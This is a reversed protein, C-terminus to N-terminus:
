DELRYINLLTNLSGSVVSTTTSKNELIYGTINNGITPNYTNRTYAELIPVLPYNLSASDFMMDAILNVGDVSATGFSRTKESVPVNEINTSYLRLRSGFDTVNEITFGTYWGYGPCGLPDQYYGTCEPTLSYGNPYPSDMFTGIVLSSTGSGITFEKSVYQWDEVAGSASAHLYPYIPSGGGDLPLAFYGCDTPNQTTDKCWFWGSMRYTKGNEVPVNYFGGNRRLAGTRTAIKAAYQTSGVPIEPFPKTVKTPDVTTHLEAVSATQYFFEWGNNDTPDGLTWQQDPNMNYTSKGQLILFSNPSTISGSIGYVGATVSSTPVMFGSFFSGTNGIVSDNNLKIPYSEVNVVTATTSGSLNYWLQGGTFTNGIVPPNFTLKNNDNLVIESILAVSASLNFAGPVRNADLIMSSQDSYLRLICPTTGSIVQANLLIFAGGLSTVSGSSNTVGPTITKQFKTVNRQFINSNYQSLFDM